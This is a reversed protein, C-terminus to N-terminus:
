TFNVVVEEKPIVAVAGTTSQPHSSAPVLTVTPMPSLEAVAVAPAPLLAPTVDLSCTDPDFRLLVEQDGDRCAVHLVGDDAAAARAEDCGSQVLADTRVDQGVLRIPWPQSAVGCRRVTLASGASGQPVTVTVSDAAWDSALPTCDLEARSLGGGGGLDTGTVTLEADSTAVMAPDPGVATILPARVPALPVAVETVQNAVITILDSSGQMVITNGDRISVDFSMQHGPPLEVFDASEGCALVVPPGVPLGTPHKHQISASDVCYDDCTLLAPDPACSDAAVLAM